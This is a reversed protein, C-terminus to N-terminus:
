YFVISIKTGGNAKINDIEEYLANMSCVAFYEICKRGNKEYTVAYDRM